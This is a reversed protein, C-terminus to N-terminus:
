KKGFLFLKVVKKNQRISPSLNNRDKNLCVHVKYRCYVRLLSRQLLRHAEHTHRGQTGITWERLWEEAEQTIALGARMTEVQTKDGSYKIQEKNQVLDEQYGRTNCRRGAQAGWTIAENSEQERGESTQSKGTCHTRTHKTRKNQAMGIRASQPAHSPSGLLTLAVRLSLFSM